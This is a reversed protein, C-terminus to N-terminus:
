NFPLVKQQRSLTDDSDLNNEVRKHDQNESIRRIGSAHNFESSYARQREEALHIVEIVKPSM